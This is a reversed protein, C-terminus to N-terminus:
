ETELWVNLFNAEEYLMQPFEMEDQQAYMSLAASIVIWHRNVCLAEFYLRETEDTKNKYYEQERDELLIYVDDQLMQMEEAAEEYTTEFEIASNAVQMLQSALEQAESTIETKSEEEASVNGSTCSTFSCAIILVLVVCLIKKM